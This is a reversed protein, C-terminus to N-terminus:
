WWWWYCTCCCCYSLWWTVQITNYIIRPTKKKRTPHMQISIYTKEESLLTWKPWTCDWSLLGSQTPRTQCPYTSLCFNIKHRWIHIFPTSQPHQSTTWKTKRIQPWQTHIHWHKHTCPCRINHTLDSLLNIIPNHSHFLKHYCFILVIALRLIFQKAM